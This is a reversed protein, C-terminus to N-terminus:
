LCVLLSYNFVSHNNELFHLFCLLLDRWWDIYECKYLQILVFIKFGVGDSKLYGVSKPFLTPNRPLSNNNQKSKTQRQWIIAINNNTDHNARVYPRSTAHLVHASSINSTMNCGFAVPSSFVFGVCFATRWSLSSPNDASKTLLLTQSNLVCWTNSSMRGNICHIPFHYSFIKRYGDCVTHQHTSYYQSTVNETHVSQIDFNLV